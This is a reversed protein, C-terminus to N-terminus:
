QSLRLCACKGVKDIKEGTCRTIIDPQHLSLTLSHPVRISVYVVQM